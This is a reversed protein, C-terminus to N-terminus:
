INAWINIFPKGAEVYEALRSKKAMSSTVIGKYIAKIDATLKIFSYLLFLILLPNYIIFIGQFISM